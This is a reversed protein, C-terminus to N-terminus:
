YIKNFIFLKFFIIIYKEYMRTTRLLGTPKGSCVIMGDKATWTSPDCNVPAWGTLDEGNFLPISLPPSLFTSAPLGDGNVLYPEDTDGWAFRVATPAAVKEAYVWLVGDKIEGEAALWKGKATQLELHSPSKGNRTKLVDAHDFEVRM